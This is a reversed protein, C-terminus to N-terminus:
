FLSTNQIKYSGPKFFCELCYLMIKELDSVDQHQSAMVRPVKSRLHLVHARLFLYCQSILVAYTGTGVGIWAAQRVVDLPNTVQEPDHSQKM